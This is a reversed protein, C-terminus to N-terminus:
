TRALAQLLAPVVTLLGFAPLVLFVLPFLLKVPLTRARAEARRRLDARLEHALRTLAPGAPAGLRDSTVVVTTIPALAPVGEATRELADALSGGLHTADLAASLHAGVAPPGWRTTLEVARFPTSGASVAVQLLDVALPLERELEATERRRASRGRISGLISRVPGPVWRGNESPQLRSSRRSGASFMATPHLDRTRAHTSARRAALVLPTALLAGWAPALVWVAGSTWASM